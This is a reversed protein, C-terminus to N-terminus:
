ARTPLCEPTGGRAMIRIGMPPTVIKSSAWGAMTGSQFRSMLIAIAPGTTFRKIAATEAMTSECATGPSRSQSLKKTLEILKGCLGTHDFEHNAPKLRSGAY